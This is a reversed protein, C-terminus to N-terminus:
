LSVTAHQQVREQLHPPISFGDGQSHSAQELRPELQAM